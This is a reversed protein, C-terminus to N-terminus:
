TPSASDDVIQQILESLWQSTGNANAAAASMLPIQRTFLTFGTALMLLRVARTEAQESGLAAAAPAIAIRALVEAVIARAEPDNTSLLIISQATIDFSESVFESALM